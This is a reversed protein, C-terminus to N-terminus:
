GGVKAEIAPFKAKIASVQAEMTRHNAQLPKCRLRLPQSAEELMGLGLTATAKIAKLGWLPEIL